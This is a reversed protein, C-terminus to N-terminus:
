ARALRELRDLQERHGLVILTDGAAVTVDPAPNFAMPDSGRKVAVVIIGLDRRIRPDKIQAGALASGGEVDIEEIQLELYDERTALELFDMVAPRLVAQAVRHGGIVYPSIVRNAGARLLKKDAGDEEARAVIDLKENLLRASMTIYLNDADSAALTVLARAREVGARRLVEDSTADGAVPIANPFAFDALVEPSRDIVVFPEGTASFEGCVMRGMRGLGCVIVHGQLAELRREMRQRWLDGRVRGTVIASILATAAYFMTFVGGLSLIMTFARGATSLPHIESFGVTTLTIATMYLADFAGWGEIAMYGAMGAGLLVAPVTLGLFLWRRFPLAPARATPAGPKLILPPPSTM